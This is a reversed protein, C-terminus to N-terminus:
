MNVDVSLFFFECNNNVDSIDKINLEKKSTKSCFKLPKKSNILGIPISYPACIVDKIFDIASSM